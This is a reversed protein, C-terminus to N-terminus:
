NEFYRIELTPRFDLTSSESSHLTAVNGEKVLVWGYNSGGNVSDIVTGTVDFEMRGGVPTSDDQISSAEFDDFAIGDGGFSSNWTSDSDWPQLVRYAIMEGGGRSAKVILTASVISAGPPIQTPDNGIINEFKILGLRTSNTAVDITGEFSNDDWAFTGERLFTDVTQEYDDNGDSFSISLPAKISNAATPASDEGGGRYLPFVAGRKGPVRSPANTHELKITKGDQTEIITHTHEPNNRFTDEYGVITVESDENIVLAREESSELPSRTLSNFFIGLAETVGGGTTVLYPGHKEGVKGGLWWLYGGNNVVHPQNREPNLQRAYVTQGTFEWSATPITPGAGGSAVNEIFLEGAGPANTYNHTGWGLFLDKLVVTQSSENRLWDYDSGGVWAPAWAEILAVPAEGTEITLVPHGKKQFNNEFDVESYGFHIREVAGRLYLRDNIQYRDTPLLINKAGSDIANQIAVTDIEQADPDVIAWTPPSPLPVTTEETILLFDNVDPWPLAPTEKVILNTATAPANDFATIVPHSVYESVPSQRASTRDKIALSYGSTTIDRAYLYGNNEIASTGSLGGNLNSDLIVVMGAEGHNLIAPVKNESKLKRISLLKDNNYIGASHQNRLTINELVYGIKWQNFWFGYEFGEIMVNQILGIGALGRHIKLGIAGTFEPDSSRITVNRISGVNNNHYELGIAGPNGSGIDITMDTISNWFSDNDSGGEFFSIVPVLDSQFGATSGATAQFNPLNDDLQIIVNERSEGELIVKSNDNSSGLSIKDTVRYIGNPFFVIQVLTKGTKTAALADTVASQIASTSDKKGSKDANYPAQTVDILPMPEPYPKADLALPLCPLVAVLMSAIGSLIPRFIGAVRSEPNSHALFLNLKKM